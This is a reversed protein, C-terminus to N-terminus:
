FPEPSANGLVRTGRLTIVDNLVLHGSLREGFQESISDDLKCCRLRSGFIDVSTM